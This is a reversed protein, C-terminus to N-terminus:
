SDERLAYTKLDLQERYGQTLAEKIGELWKDSPLVMRASLNFDPYRGRIHPHMAAAVEVDSQSVYRGAWKEIIHKLPRSKGSLTARVNQADLWEYAMRICDDHEHFVERPHEYRVGKKAAAIQEATLM